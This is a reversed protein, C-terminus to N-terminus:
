PATPFGAAISNESGTTVVPTLLGSAKAVEVDECDGGECTPDQSSVSIPQLEWNMAQTRALEERNEQNYKKQLSALEQETEARVQAFLEEDQQTMAQAKVGVCMAAIFLIRFFMRYIFDQKDFGM